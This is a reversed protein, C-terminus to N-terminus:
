TIRCLLEPLERLSSITFDASTGVQEIADAHRLWITKMGLARAPACDKTLSDGIMIAEAARASLMSLAARYIGPAPKYVGLLGSDAVGGIGEFGAEDIIVRLNGYFNSVIGVRFDRSLTAVLARNQALGARSESAFRAAVERAVNRFQDAPANFEGIRNAALMEVQQGVLYDLLQELGYNMLRSGNEYAKRTAYDFAPDLQARSLPAGAAGYHGVFRDLWHRPYDLTGGFDFLLVRM